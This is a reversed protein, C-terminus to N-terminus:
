HILTFNMWGPARRRNNNGDLSYGTVYSVKQGPRSQVRPSVALPYFRPECFKPDFVNGNTVDTCNNRCNQFLQRITQDTEFVILDTLNGTAFLVKSIGFGSKYTNHNKITVINDKRRIGM